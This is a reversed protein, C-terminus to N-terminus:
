KYNKTREIALDIQGMVDDLAFIKGTLYIDLERVEVNYSREARAELLQRHCFNSLGQLINIADQKKM